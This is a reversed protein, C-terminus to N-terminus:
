KFRTRQLRVIEEAETWFDHVGYWQTEWLQRVDYPQPMLVARPDEVIRMEEDAHQAHSRNMLAFVQLFRCTELVHSIHAANRLIEEPESDFKYALHTLNLEWGACSSCRDWPEVFELHTIRSFLPWSFDPLITPHCITTLSLNLSLRHPTKESDRLTPLRLLDTVWVALGVISTCLPMIEAAKEYDVGFGIALIKIFAWFPEGCKAIVAETVASTSGFWAMEYLIPEVWAKVVRSVLLLRQGIEGHARASIRFIECEIEPPFNFNFSPNVPVDAVNCASPRYSQRFVSSAM